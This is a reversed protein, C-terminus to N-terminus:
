KTARAASSRAADYRPRLFPDAARWAREVVRYHTAASDHRGAADFSRALLEHLETRTVYLNSGELGGHLAANVIPIAEAARGSALLSAGLEYNIRTYGFTPSVLSARYEDVAAAHRGARSLLLGRVFHHLPPDRLFLSQAGFTQISDVLHRARLTDGAAVAATASLTLTWTAYRARYGSRARATDGVDPRYIARFEDAADRGLGMEMDVIGAMYADTPIGRKVINSRPVRGERLLARAERYRGAMRLAIACYWRYQVFQGSDASALGADCARDAAELDDFRLSEVISNVQSTPLRGGLAEFRRWANQAEASRGFGTHFDALTMWPTADNPRLANWRRITRLAAESSDAWRYRATLTALADCLRCLASASPSAASDLAIARDLLEVARSLDATIEAARVLAEPDRPYNTALTEAAARATLDALEGGVHTLVLLRDRRPARSALALAREALRWEDPDGVARAARWAHYTAMAFTSDEHIAAHFLRNAAYADQQYLARLGEEYIRYAIPSRTSVDVLSGNPAGVRLDAAIVATMSDFLAIRDSGSIRYGGRVLGRALEVRRVELRFQGDATPILEGEIVETAGSRRAADTFASRSTDANRPTLELMRSNAVVQLDAVRGLSTALMERLVGGGGSALSDPAALDRIRGVALVTNPARRPAAIWRWGLATAAVVVVTVAVALVIRSVNSTARVTMPQAVLPASVVPPAFVTAPEPLALTAAAPADTTHSTTSHSGTVHLERMKTMLREIASHPEAEYERRILESHARGHALAATRDGLADLAQMYAAALRPDAPDLHTLRYWHEAAEELRGAEASAKAAVEIARIGLTALAGRESEAWREFEPADALVFGDLFPGAYLASATAWEKAAVAARFDIVDATIRDSDLRLTPTTLVVDEDLDRRLSYLTQSLAHRARDEDTEPWLVAMVRDRTLGKAGAAALIALLALSRPRLAADAAADQRDFSLGGFTKLRV